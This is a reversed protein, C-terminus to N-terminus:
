ASATVGFSLSRFFGGVSDLLSPEAPPAEVVVPAERKAARKAARAEKAQKKALARDRKKADRKAALEADAVAQQREKNGGGLRGRNIDSLPVGAAVARKEAMAAELLADEDIAAEAPEAARFAAKERYARQNPNETATPRGM